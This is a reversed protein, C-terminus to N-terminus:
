VGSSWICEICAFPALHRSDPLTWAAKATQSSFSFCSHSVPSFPRRYLKRFHNQEHEICQETPPHQLQLNPSDWALSGNVSCQQVIYSWRVNQRPVHGLSHLEHANMGLQFRGLNARAAGTMGAETVTPGNLCRKRSFNLLADGSAALASHKQLRVTGVTFRNGRTRAHCRLGQQGPQM